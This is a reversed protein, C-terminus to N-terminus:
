PFGGHLQGDTTTAERKITRTLRASRQLYPYPASVIREGDKKARDIGASDVLTAFKIDRCPRMM